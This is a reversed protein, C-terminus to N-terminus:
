NGDVNSCSIFGELIGSEVKRGNLLSYDAIHITLDKHTHTRTCAYTDTSVIQPTDSNHKGRSYTVARTALSCDVLEPHCPYWDIVHTHPYFM